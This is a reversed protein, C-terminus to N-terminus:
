GGIESLLRGLATRRWEERRCAAQRRSEEWSVARPYEGLSPACWAARVAELEARLDADDTHASVTRCSPCIVEAGQLDRQRQRV